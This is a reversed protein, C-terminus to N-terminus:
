DRDNKAAELAHRVQACKEDEPFQKLFDNLEGIMSEIDGTLRYIEAGLLQPQTFHTPELAKERALQDLAEQLRGTQFLSMALHYRAQADQPRVKVALQYHPLAEEPKGKNLLLTGLNSLSRYSYPDADLAKRFSREAEEMENRSMQIMGMREYAESFAADEAVAMELYVLAEDLEAKELSKIARNYSSRAQESISKPNYHGTLLAAEKRDSPQFSFSFDVEHDQDANESGLVLDQGVPTYGPVEISIFYNGPPLDKFQFSGRESVVARVRSQEQKDVLFLVPHIYEHVTTERMYIQKLHGVEGTGVFINRGRIGKDLSGAARGVPAEVTEFSPVRVKREIRGDHVQHIKGKLTYQGDEQSSKVLAPEAALFGEIGGILFVLLLFPYFLFYRFRQSGSVETSKKKLSGRRMSENGITSKMRDEPFVDGGSVLFSLCKWHHWHRNVIGDWNLIRFDVQKTEFM